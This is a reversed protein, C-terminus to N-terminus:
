LKLHITSSVANYVYTRRYINYTFTFFFFFFFFFFFYYYYYYYTDSRLALATSLNYAEQVIKCLKLWSAVIEAWFFTTQTCGWFLRYLTSVMLSSKVTKLMSVVGCYALLCSTFGSKERFEQLSLFSNLNRGLEM